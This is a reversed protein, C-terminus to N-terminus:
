SKRRALQWGTLVLPMVWGLMSAVVGYRDLYYSFQVFGYDRFFAKAVADNMHPAMVGFGTALEGAVAFTGKAAYGGAAVVGAGVWGAAALGMACFGASFVGLCFIGGSGIGISIPAIAGTGMAFFGGLARGDSVALWAKVTPRTWGRKSGVRVHVLPLGWLGIASRHEFVPRDDEPPKTFLVPVDGPVIRNVRRKALVATWVAAVIGLGLVAFHLPPSDREILWESVLFFGLVAAGIGANMVLYAWAARRREREDVVAAHRGRFKFFEVFGGLLAPLLMVLTAGKAVLGGKAMAGGVAGAAAMTKAAAGGTAGAEAVVAATPGLGWPVALMVAGAFGAAPGSRGLTEEVLVAMRENLLARGRALRQRVTEESIELAAAVAAASRQERYFLVMPERYIEPIGALARWMVAVEDARAAEERPSEGAGPAQESIAEARATPTRRDRRAAAHALNRAIGCLWGRLKEPERLAPLQRWAAVFVEQGVEESRGPDGGASLAVACVAAQHREVIRRFAERDGALHREVLERDTPAASDLLTTM